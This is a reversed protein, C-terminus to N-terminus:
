LNIGDIRSKGAIGQNVQVCVDIAAKDVLENRVIKAQGPGYVAVLVSTDGISLNSSGDARNLAGQESAIQRLENCNRGDDRLM